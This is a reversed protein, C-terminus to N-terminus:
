RVLVEEREAERPEREVELVHTEYAALPEPEPREIGAAPRRRRAILWVAM